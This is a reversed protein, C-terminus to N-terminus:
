PLKNHHKAWRNWRTVNLNCAVLQFNKNCNTENFFVISKVLSVKQDKSTVNYIDVLYFIKMATM